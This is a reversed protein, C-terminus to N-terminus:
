IPSSAPVPLAEARGSEAEVEYLVQQNAPKGIVLLKRSDESWVPNHRPVPMFSEIEKAADPKDLEGVWLAQRSGRDSIFALMRNDPSM